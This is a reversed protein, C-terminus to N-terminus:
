WLEGPPIILTRLRLVNENDIQIYTKSFIGGEFGNPHTYVYIRKGGMYEPKPKELDIRKDRFKSFHLYSIIELLIFIGIITCAITLWDQLSILAWNYGQNFVAIGSFVIVVFIIVFIM